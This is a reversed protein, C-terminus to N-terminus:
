PKANPASHACSSCESATAIRTPDGTLRDIAVRPVNQEKTETSRSRFCCLNLVRLLRDSFCAESARAKTAGLRHEEGQAM